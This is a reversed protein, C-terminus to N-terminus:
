VLLLEKPISYKATESHPSAGRRYLAQVRMHYTTSPQLSKLITTLKSAAVRETTLHKGDETHYTVTYYKIRKPVPNPSKWTVVANYPDKSPKITVDTPPNGIVRPTRYKVPEALPGPGKRNWAEVSFHYSKQPKLFQVRYSLVSRSVNVQASLKGKKTGYYIQYGTINGHSLEPPQWTVLASTPDDGAMIIRVDQPPSGPAAELTKNVVVKSWESHHFGRNVRVQFEYTSGPILDLLFISPFTPWIMKYGAHKTSHASIRRYRLTYTRPVGARDFGNKKDASRTGGPDHWSVVASNSSMIMVRLMEPVKMQRSAKKEKPTTYSVVKSRPGFGLDTMAQVFFYYTTEPRLGHFAQQKVNQSVAAKQQWQKQLKWRDTSYMVVYEKIKSDLHPQWTLVAVDPSNARGHVEAILPPQSFDAAFTTNVVPQSWPSEKEQCHVKVSFEYRTLPELDLLYLSPFPSTVQTLASPEPDLARYRVTYTASCLSMEEDEEYIRAMGPDQWSVVVSTSSLVNAYINRPSEVPRLDMKDKASPTRFLVTNSEPGYGVSTHAQVKFNYATDPELGEIVAMRLAQGLRSEVQWHVDHDGVNQTYLIVFGLINATVKQPIEWVLMAARPDNPAPSATLTAPVPAPDGPLQYEQIIVPPGIGKSNKAHVSFDYTVGPLLSNLTVSLKSGEVQVRQEVPKSDISSTTFSVDYGTIVGNAELPPQWTLLVQGPTDPDIIATLDRPPSSPAAEHTVNWVMMSWTSNRQGDSALVAFEYRTHPRLEGVLSYQQESRQVKFNLAVYATNKSGSASSSIAQHQSLPRYRLYYERKQTPDEKASMDVWTVNIEHASLVLPRVGIPPMIVSKAGDAKRTMVTEYLAQGVGMQNYARISIIYQWGPELGNIKHTVDSANIQVMHVDPFDRGYGIQYGDVPVPTGDQQPPQWSVMAFTTYPVVYLESMSPPEQSIENDEKKKKTDKRKKKREKRKEKREMDNEQSTVKKRNGIKSNRENCPRTKVQTKRCFASNSVSSKLKQVAKQIGTKLDCKDWVAAEYKCDTKNGHKNKKRKRQKDRLRKRKKRRKEKRSTKKNKRSLRGKRQNKDKIKEEDCSRSEVTNNDCMTTDGVSLELTRTSTKTANDCISWDSVQVYKCGNILIIGKDCPRTYTRTPPCKKRGKLLKAEKTQLRLAEDCPSWKASRKDYKCRIRLRKEKQAFNAEVFLILFTLLLTAGVNLKM